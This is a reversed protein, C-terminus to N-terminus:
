TGRGAPPGSGPTPGVAAAPTGAEPLDRWTPVMASAISTRPITFNFRKGVRFHVVDADVEVAGTGLARYDAALWWIASLTTLTLVWALWPKRSYLYLHLGIGESVLVLIIGAM